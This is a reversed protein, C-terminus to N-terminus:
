IGEVVAALSLKARISEWAQSFGDSTGCLEIYRRRHLEKQREIDGRIKAHKAATFAQVENEPVEVIEGANLAAVLNETLTVEVPSNGAIFAEGNPHQEDRESFAVVDGSDANQKYNSRVFIQKEHNVRHSPVVHVKIKEAGKGFAGRPLGAVLIGDFDRSENRM